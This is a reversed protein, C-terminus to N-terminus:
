EKHGWGAYTITGKDPYEIEIDTESLESILWMLHSIVEDKTKLQESENMTADWTTVTYKSM